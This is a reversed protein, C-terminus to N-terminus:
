AYGIVLRLWRCTKMSLFFARIATESEAVLLEEHAKWDIM